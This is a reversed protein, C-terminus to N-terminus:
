SKSIEEFTESIEDAVKKADKDADGTSKKGFKYGNYFGICKGFGYSVAGIGITTLLGFNIRVKLKQEM